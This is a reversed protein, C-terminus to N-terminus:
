VLKLFETFEVVQTRGIKNITLLDKDGTVLFNAKGDNALSLIFNDKPDRCIKIDSRVTVLEGYIDFLDLLLELDGSEFYKKFKPRNAIALFEELM